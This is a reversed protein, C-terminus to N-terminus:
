KGQHCGCRCTDGCYGCTTQCESHREHFCAATLYRDDAAALQTRFLANQTRLRAYETLLSTVWPNLSAVGRAIVEAEALSPFPRGPCTGPPCEGPATDCEPCWDDPATTPDAM